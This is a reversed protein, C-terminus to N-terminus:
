DNEIVVRFDINEIAGNDNMTNIVSNKFTNLLDNKKTNEKAKFSKQVDYAIGQFVELIVRVPVNEKEILIAAGLKKMAWKDKKNFTSARILAEEGNLTMAEIIIRM